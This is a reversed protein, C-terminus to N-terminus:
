RRVRELRQTLEQLVARDAAVRGRYEDLALGLGVVGAVPLLVRAWRALPRLSGVRSRPEKALSAGLAILEEAHLGAIALPEARQSRVRYVGRALDGLEPLDAPAIAEVVRGAKARCGRAHKDGIWILDVVRAAVLRSLGALAMEFPVARSDAHRLLATRDLWAVTEREHNSALTMEVPLEGRSRRLKSRRRDLESRIGSVVLSDQPSLVVLDPEVVESRDLELNRWRSRVRYGRKSDSNALVVSVVRSPADISSLLISLSNFTLM